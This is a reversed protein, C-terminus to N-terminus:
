WGAGPGSIMNTYFPQYIVPGLNIPDDIYDLIGAEIDNSSTTNWYNNIAMQTLSTNNKIYYDLGGMINNNKIEVTSDNNILINNESLLYFLNNEIVLPSYQSVLTGIDNFQITFNLCSDLLIYRINNREITPKAAFCYVYIGSDSLDCYRLFCNADISRNRFVIYSQAGDMAFFKIPEATNGVANLAGDDVIIGVTGASGEPGVAFFEIDTGPKITLTAQKTILVNQIIKVPGHSNDWTTDEDIITTNEYNLNININSVIMITPQIYDPSLPDNPNFRKNYDCSMFFSFFILILLIKSCRKTYM